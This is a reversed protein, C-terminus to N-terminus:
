ERISLRYFGTDGNFPAVVEILDLIGATGIVSESSIPLPLWEADRLDSKYQLEFTIGQVASFRQFQFIAQTAGPNLRFDDLTLPSADDITPDRGLAYELFNPAGDADSDQDSDASPLDGSSTGDIVMRLANLVAFENDSTGPDSNPAVEVRIEGNADPVVRSFVAWVSNDAANIVLSEPTGGGTVTYVASYDFTSVAANRKALFAIEYSLGVDLGAIRLEASSNGTLAFLNSEAAVDVIGGELSAGDGERTTTFPRDVTLTYGDGANGDADVLSYPTTASPSSITNWTEGSVYSPTTDSNFDILYPRRIETLTLFNIGAFFTGAPTDSPDIQISISGGADPRISHAKVVETSLANDHDYIVRGSAGTITYRANYDFGTVVVGRNCFLGLDYHLKPDLGSLVIVASGLDTDITIFSTRQADDDYGVLPDGNATRSQDFGQRLRVSYGARGDNSTDVLPYPTTATLSDVTNWIEGGYDPSSSDNFDILYRTPQLLYFDSIWSHYSRGNESVSITAINSYGSQLGSERSSVRYSYRVGTSLGTDVFRTVNAAVSGALEWGGSEDYARREVVFGTESSSTDVWSLEVTDIAQSRAELNYPPIVAVPATANTTNIVATSLSQARNTVPNGSAFSGDDLAACIELSAQQFAGQHQALAEQQTWAARYVCWDQYDASIPSDTGEVGSGGLIFQDPNLNERLRGVFRGDLFLLTEQQAYRHALAVDHWSGDDADVSVTIERGDPAVYALESDRLEIRAYREIPAPEDVSVELAGLYAYGGQEPTMTLTIEGGATPEVGSIMVISDDNGDYARNSGINEGSTQLFAFPSYAMGGSITFRTERTDSSQRTAFMRFTYRKAPDLDTFKFAGTGTEYFYDETATEVALGGLQESAPGDSARLGGSLIGNSGTFADTVELGVTTAVNNVTVLNSSSTGVPISQGGVAPRWSNWYNGFSDTGATARGNVDDSPGFDILFLPKTAMRVAAVTGQSGSRVKFNTTFARMPEAPTYTLPAALGPDQTLRLFANSSPYTPM